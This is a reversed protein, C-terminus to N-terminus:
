LCRTRRRSGQSVVRVACGGEGGGTNVSSKHTAPYANCEINASDRRHKAARFPSGDKERGATASVSSVNSPLVDGEWTPKDLTGHTDCHRIYKTIQMHTKGSAEANGDESSLCRSKLQMILCRENGTTSTRDLVDTNLWSLSVASLDITRSRVGCEFQV